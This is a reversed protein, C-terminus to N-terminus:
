LFDLKTTYKPSEIQLVVPIERNSFQEGLGRKSITQWSFELTIIINIFLSM